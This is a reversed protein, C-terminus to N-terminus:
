HERSRNKGKSQKTKRNKCLQKAVHNFCFFGFFITKKRNKRNVGTQRTSFVHRLVRLFCCNLSFEEEWQKAFGKPVLTNAHLCSLVLLERLPLLKKTAKRLAWNVPFNPKRRGRKKTNTKNPKSLLQKNEWRFPLSSFFNNNKGCEFWFFLRTQVREVPKKDWRTARWQPQFYAQFTLVAEFNRNPLLFWFISTRKYSDVEKKKERSM